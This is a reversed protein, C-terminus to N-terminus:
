PKQPLHTVQCFGETYNLKRIYIEKVPTQEISPPSGLAIGTDANRQVAMKFYALSAYQPSSISTNQEGM